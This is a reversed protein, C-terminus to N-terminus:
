YRDAGTGGDLTGGYRSRSFLRDGGGGGLVLALKKGTTLKDAGWGGVITAKLPVANAIAVVDHGGRADIRVRASEKVKASYTIYVEYVGEVTVRIFDNASALAAALAPHEAALQQRLRAPDLADALGIRALGIATDVFVYQQLENKV